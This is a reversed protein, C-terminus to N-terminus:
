KEERTESSKQVCVDSALLSDVLLSQTDGSFVSPKGEVDVTWSPAGSTPIMRSDLIEM